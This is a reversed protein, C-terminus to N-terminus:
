KDRLYTIAYKKLFAATSYRKIIWDILFITELIPVTCIALQWKRYVKLNLKSYLNPYDRRFEDTKSMNFHYFFLSLAIASIFSKYFLYIDFLSIHEHILEQITPLASM